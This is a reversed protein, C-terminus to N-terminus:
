PGEKVKERITQVSAKDLLKMFEHKSMLTAVDNDKVAQMIEPNALIKKFDPDDQLGRIIAMIETDNMMRDTLAGSQIRASSNSQM